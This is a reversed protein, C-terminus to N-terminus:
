AMAANRAVTDERFAAIGAPGDDRPQLCYYALQEIICASQTSSPALIRDTATRL